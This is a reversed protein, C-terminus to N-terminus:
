PEIVLTKLYAILASRDDASAAIYADRSDRAEGGHARIVEDLTTMDGRHGYPATNGVGWLESTMFENREVFRQALLENGLSAVEQDAIMHRKLDGFLPVMLNGDKDRELSKAWDLKSLDYSVPTGIDKISLTGAADYPGPDTFVTSKLPLARIHCSSCQLTDFVESGHNAAQAWNNDQPTEIVPVPLAAQFAVLASLDGPTLENAVGDEDFDDTGTWRKGFREEAEMGFHANLANITFQRLSTMVGKQSFPRIVLDDDVGELKSLDVQGDATATITGFKVGKSQLKVTVPKKTSRAQKLAESRVTQLDETMERALLELLGSGFMHNTGRENSFQPDLSDFEASEFGESVFVNTVFDGAGGPAPDNHCSSCANSDPGHTRMFAAAAERKRKTPIIAQTAMPRGEGDNVTFKDTFLKRGEDILDQLAKKDPQRPIAAEDIHQMIAHEAWPAIHANKVSGGAHSPPSMVIFCASLALKAKAQM